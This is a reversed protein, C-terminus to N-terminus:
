GDSGFQLEIVYLPPRLKKVLRCREESTLEKEEVLLLLLLLM